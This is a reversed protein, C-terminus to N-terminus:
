RKRKVDGAMELSMDFPPLNELSTSESQKQFYRRIIVPTHEPLQLILEVCMRGKEDITRTDTLLGRYGSLQTITKIHTADGTVKIINGKVNVEQGFKLHKTETFIRTRRTIIFDGPTQNIIVMLDLKDAAQRAILPLGMAELYDNTSDSDERDLYWRGSLFLAGAGATNPVAPNTAVASAATAAAVAVPVPGGLGTPAAPAVPTATNPVPVPVSASVAPKFAARMQNLSLQAAAAAAAATVANPAANNATATASATTNRPPIAIANGVVSTANAAHLNSTNM